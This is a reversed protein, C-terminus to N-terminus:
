KREERKKQPPVKGAMELLLEAFRLHVQPPAILVFIDTGPVWRGKGEGRGYFEILIRALEIITSDFDRQSRVREIIRREIERQLLDDGYRTRYYDRWVNGATEAIESAIVDTLRFSIPFTMVKLYALNYAKVMPEFKIKDKSVLMFVDDDYLIELDCAKAVYKLATEATVGKLKLTLKPQKDGTPVSSHLVLNIGTQAVIFDLADNLPTDYCEFDIVKSRLSLLGEVKETEPLKKEAGLGVVCFAVIGILRMM